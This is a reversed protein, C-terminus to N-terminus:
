QLVSHLDTKKESLLLNQRPLSPQTITLLLSPSRRCCFQRRGLCVPGVGPTMTQSAIEQRGLRQEESTLVRGQQFKGIRYQVTHYPM